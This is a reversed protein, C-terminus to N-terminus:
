RPEFVDNLKTEEEAGRPDSQKLLRRLATDRFHKDAKRNNRRDETREFQNKGLNDFAQTTKFKLYQTSAKLDKKDVGRTKKPEGGGGTPGVSESDYRDEREARDRDHQYVYQEPGILPLDELPLDEFDGEEREIEGSEEEYKGDDSEKKIANNKRIADELMKARADQNQKNIREQDKQLFFDNNDRQSMEQSLIFSQIMDQLQDQNPNPTYIAQLPSYQNKNSQREISDEPSVFGKKKKYYPRRKVKPASPMIIKVIQTVTQKVSKDSTKKSKKKPKKKKKIIKQEVM